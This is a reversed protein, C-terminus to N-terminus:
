NYIDYDGRYPPPNYYVGCVLISCNKFSIEFYVNKRQKLNDDYYQVWLDTFEKLQVAWTDWSHVFSCGGAIVTKNSM